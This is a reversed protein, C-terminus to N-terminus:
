DEVYYILTISGARLPCVEPLTKDERYQCETGVEDFECGTLPSHFPCLEQRGSETFKRGAHSFVRKKIVKKVM